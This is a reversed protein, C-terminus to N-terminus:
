GAPPSSAILNPMFTKLVKLFAIVLHCFPRVLPLFFQRSRTSSDILFAAKAEQDVPISSDLYLALWPNPDRADHVIQELTEIAKIGSM